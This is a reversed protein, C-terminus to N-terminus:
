KKLGPHILNELAQTALLTWSLKHTLKAWKGIVSPQWKKATLLVHVQTGCFVVGEYQGSLQQKM